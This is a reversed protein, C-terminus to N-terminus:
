NVGRSELPPHVGAIIWIKRATVLWDNNLRLADVTARGSATKGIVCLGDESWAFHELWSQRSPNFLLVTTSSESDIARVRNGKFENCRYCSLALNSLITEGGLSLPIIHEMVMPM